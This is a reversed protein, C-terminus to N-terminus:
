TVNQGHEQYKNTVTPGVYYMIRCLICSVINFNTRHAIFNTIVFLCLEDATIFIFFSLIFKSVRGSKEKSYQNSHQM